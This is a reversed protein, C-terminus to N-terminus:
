ESIIFIPKLVAASRSCATSEMRTLPLASRLSTSWTSSKEFSSDPLRSIMGTWVAAEFSIPSMTSDNLAAFALGASSILDRASPRGASMTSGCRMPCSRRFRTLLATFNVFDPCTSTRALNSEDSPAEPVSRMSTSSVPQPMPLSSMSSMMDGYSFTLAM